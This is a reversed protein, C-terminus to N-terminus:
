AVGPLAPSRLPGWTDLSLFKSIGETLDFGPGGLSATFAFNERPHSPTCGEKAKIAGTLHPLFRGPFTVGPPRSGLSWGGKGHQAGGPLWCPDARSSTPNISNRFGVRKRGDLTPETAETNNVNNTELIHLTM